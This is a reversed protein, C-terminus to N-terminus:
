GRIVDKRKNPKRESVVAALDPNWALHDKTPDFVDKTLAFRAAYLIRSAGSPNQDLLEFLRKMAKQCEQEDDLDLWDPDTDLYTGDARPPFQGEAIANLMPVLREFMQLDEENAKAFRLTLPLTEPM